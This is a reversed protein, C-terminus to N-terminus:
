KEVVEIAEMMLSVRGAGPRAGPTVSCEVVRWPPRVRAAEVMLKGADAFSADDLTVDASRLSWGDALPASDRPRVDVHSDPLASRVLDALPVARKRDMGAYAEKAAALRQERAAFDLLKECDAAQRKLQAM